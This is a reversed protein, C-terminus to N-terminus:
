KMMAALARAHAIVEIIEHKVTDVNVPRDQLLRLATLPHVLLDKMQYCLARNGEQSPKPLAADHHYDREIADISLSSWSTRLSMAANLYDSCGPYRSSFVPIMDAAIDSLAQLPPQQSEPASGGELAAVVAEAREVYGHFSADIEGAACCVSASSMLGLGVLASVMRCAVM